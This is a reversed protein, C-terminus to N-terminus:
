CYSYLLVEICYVVVLLIYDLRPARVYVVCVALDDDVVLVLMVGV